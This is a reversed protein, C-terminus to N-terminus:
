DAWRPSLFRMTRTPSPMPNSGPAACVNGPDAGFEGLVQPIAAANRVKVTAYRAGGKVSFDM